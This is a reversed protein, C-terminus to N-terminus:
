SMFCTGYNCFVPGNYSNCCQFTTECPQGLTLCCIAGPFNGNVQCAGSCCDDAANCAVGPDGCIGCAASSELLNFWCTNSDCCAPGGAYCAGDEPVCTEGDGGDRDKKKDKKKRKGVCRFDTGSGPKLKCIGSCCQEDATCESQDNRCALKEHRRNAGRHADADAVFAGTAAIGLMARVGSRRSTSSALKKVLADFHANDM